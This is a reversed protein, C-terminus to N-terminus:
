KERKLLPLSHLLLTRGVASNTMRRFWTYKRTYDRDPLPFLGKSSLEDLCSNLTQRSHTLTITNYIYDMTLQAVRRQLALRDNQPLKDCLNQLHLIVSLNDELRKKKGTEETRSQQIASNKYCRYFYAKAKTVYVEEARLLLQATFEEDEGYKIEPSFALKGLISQRFIFCCVTGAINHNRMYATGSTKIPSQVINDQLSASHTFDFMVMEIDSNLRLLDLCHEYPSQILYDDADIFQIFKGTAMNMGRNRATSVGQNKQRVYVIDNGYQMLGNMPCVESGDDIVIIEREFSRLSLALISDICECLLQVPQNYYTIVFSVLPTDKQEIM